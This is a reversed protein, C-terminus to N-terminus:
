RKTLQRDGCALADAESAGGVIILKSAPDPGQVDEDTTMGLAGGGLRSRRTRRAKPTARNCWPGLM